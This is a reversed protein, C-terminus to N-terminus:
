ASAPLKEPGAPDAGGVRGFPTAPPEDASKVAQPALEAIANVRRSRLSIMLEPGDIGQGVRVSGYHFRIVERALFVPVTPYEETTTAEGVRLQDLRLGPYRISVLCIAAEDRGRQQLTIAIKADRVIPEVADKGELIARCLWLLADRLSAEHGWIVPGSEPVAAQGGLEKAVSQVLRKMDVPKTPQKTMEYLTSLLHPM